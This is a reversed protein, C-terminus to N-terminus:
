KFTRQIRGSPFFHGERSAYPVPQHCPYLTAHQVGCVMLSLIMIPPNKRTRPRQMKPQQQLMSAASCGRGNSKPFPYCPWSFLMSKAHNQMTHPPHRRRIQFRRIPQKVKKAAVGMVASARLHGKVLRIFMEQTSEPNRQAPQINTKPYKQHEQLLCNQLTNPWEVLPHHVSTKCWQPIHIRTSGMQAWTMCPIITSTSSQCTEVQPRCQLALLPAMRSFHTSSFSRSLWNTWSRTNRQSPLLPIRSFPLSSRRCRKSM